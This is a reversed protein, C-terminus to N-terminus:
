IGGKADIAILEEEVEKVIEENPSSKINKRVAAWKKLQEDFVNVNLQATKITAPWYAKKLEILQKLTAQAMGFDKFKNTQSLLFDVLQASYKNILEEKLIIIDSTSKNKDNKKNYEDLFEDVETM